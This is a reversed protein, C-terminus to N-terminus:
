KQKVFDEFDMYQLSIGAEKLLKFAEEDPYKHGYVVKKIGTQIILKACIMCPSKTVYITSGKIDQHHLLANLIARQEAHVSRCIEQREGSKLQYKKRLCVDCPKCGDPVSNNGIGLVNQDKVILSGVKGKLCNSKLAEECVMNMWKEDM